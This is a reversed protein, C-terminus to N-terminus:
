AMCRVLRSVHARSKPCIIYIAVPETMASIIVDIILIGHHHNHRNHTHHHHPPAAAAAGATQPTAAPATTSADHMSSVSANTATTPAMYHLQCRYTTIIKIALCRRDRTRFDQTEPWTPFKRVTSKSVPGRPKSISHLAGGAVQSRCPGHNIPTLPQLAEHTILTRSPDTPLAEILTM